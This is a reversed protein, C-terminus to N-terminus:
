SSNGEGAWVNSFQLMILQWGSYPGICTNHVAPLTLLLNTTGYEWTICNICLLHSRFKASALTYYNHFQGLDWLIHSHITNIAQNHLLLPKFISKSAYLKIGWLAVLKVALGNYHFSVKQFLQPVPWTKNQPAHSRNSVALISMQDATSRSCKWADQNM